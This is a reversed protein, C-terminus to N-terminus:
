HGPGASQSAVTGGTGTPGASSQVPTARPRPLGLRPRNVWVDPSGSLGPIAPGAAEGEASGISTALPAGPLPPEPKAPPIGLRSLADRVIMAFVPASAEAGYQHTGVVVVLATVAPDEAPTFGAFSSIFYNDYYGGGPKPYLATGTKGAVTYPELNAAQGTGVSVVGELMQTMEAAVLKSVVRHPRPYAFLHEHGGPGIYGSVLKPPVFVGGNAITNYADAMQVATVDVGEGIPVTAITTGSQEAPLFPVLGASEGPFGIDTVEGEGFRKAWELVSRLGMRQAIEVTGIDSSHAIINAPTWYLTPHVWADQIYTGAVDYTNPIRIVTTPAVVGMQLAACMTVLKETSGPAYVDTFASANPAEVPQARRLATESLKEPAGSATEPVFWEPLAPPEQLTAPESASPMALEAVALLDGTKTSMIVAMGSKARAAVIARSLAEEADYQLPEDITLVLDDGRVPAQYQRLGGPIAGGAPDMDEVLKGPKGELLNNYKYELGSLGTGDAGVEGLLPLALQGAPHFRKPEQMTYIGPLEGTGILRQVRAAQADPITHALYVFGSALSLEGQLTAEPLDLLGALKAAEARPNTVQYPDAYVTTMPVSMALENGNRDLIAGREGYFTVTHVYESTAEEQYKASSLVQVRFLQVLVGALCAVLAGMLSLYRWPSRGAKM